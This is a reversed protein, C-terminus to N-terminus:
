EVVKHSFIWKSCLSVLNRYLIVADDETAVSVLCDDVYFCHLLKDM